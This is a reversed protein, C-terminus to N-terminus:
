GWFLRILTLTTSLVYREYLIMTGQLTSLSVDDRRQELCKM